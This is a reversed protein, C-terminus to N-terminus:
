ELHFHVNTEPMRITAFDRYTFAKAGEQTRPEPCQREGNRINNTSRQLWMFGNAVFSLLVITGFLIIVVVRDRSWRVVQTATRVRGGWSVSSDRRFAAMCAVSLEWDM